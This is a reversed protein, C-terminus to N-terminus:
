TSVAQTRITARGNASTVQSTNTMKKAHQGVTQANEWVKPM